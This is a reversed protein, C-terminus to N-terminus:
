PPAPEKTSDPESPMPEIPPQYPPESPATDHVFPGATLDLRERVQAALYRLANFEARNFVMLMSDVVTTVSARHTTKHILAAEGFWAGPHLLAFLGSSDHMRALGDVLVFFQSGPAGEACLTRAARVTLTTGLEDIMMLQSRGCGHFLDM